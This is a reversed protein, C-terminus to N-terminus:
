AKWESVLFTGYPGSKEPRFAGIGIQQSGEVLLTNIFDVPLVQDNVVLTFKASWFDWRPRHCMIRGKTSPICVPRSDIEFDRAPSQGDGNLIVVGDEKIRVAGPVVYKASRRSGRLKHNAAAERLLKPIAPGPFYFRGDKDVYAARQAQERPTGKDVLVQRTSKEQESNEPFRCLLLPSTGTIKVQITKM